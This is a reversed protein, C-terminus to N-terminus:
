NFWEHVIKHWDASLAWWMLDIFKWAALVAIILFGLNISM